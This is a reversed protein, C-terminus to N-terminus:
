HPVTLIHQVAADLALRLSTVDRRVEALVIGGEYACLLIEALDMASHDTRALGRCQLEGIGRALLDRWQAFADRVAQASGSDTEVIEVGLAGLPCRIPGPGTHQAVAENAWAVLDEASAMDRLRASQPGITRRTQLVVVERVLEEKDGFYHYMQGKGTGSQDAVHQIGTRAVGRRYFLDAATDLIRVRTATGRPTPRTDLRAM